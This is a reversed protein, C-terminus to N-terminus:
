RVGASKPATRNPDQGATTHSTMLATVLNMTLYHSGNHGASKPAARNPDQGRSKQRRTIHPLPPPPVLTSGFTYFQLVSPDVRTKNAMEKLNSFVNLYWFRRYVSFVLLVDNCTNSASAYQFMANASSILMRSEACQKPTVKYLTSFAVSRLSEGNM